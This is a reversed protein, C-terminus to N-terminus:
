SEEDHIAYRGKRRDKSSRAILFVGFLFLAVLRQGFVLAAAVCVGVAWLIPDTWRSPQKNSM